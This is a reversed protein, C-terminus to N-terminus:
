PIWCGFQPLPAAQHELRHQLWSSILRYPRQCSIMAISQRSPPSACLLCGSVSRSAGLRGRAPAHTGHHTFLLMIGAMRKRPQSWGMRLLGLSSGHRRYVSPHGIGVVAAPAALNSILPWRSTPRHRCGAAHRCRACLRRQVLAHLVRQRYGVRNLLVADGPSCSCCVSWCRCCWQFFHAPEKGRHQIAARSLSQLWLRRARHTAACRAWCLAGALRQGGVAVVFRLQSFGLGQQVPADLLSPEAAIGEGGDFPMPLPAVAFAANVLRALERARHWRSLRPRRRHDTATNIPKNITAQSRITDRM